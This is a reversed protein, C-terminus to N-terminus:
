PIITGRATTKAITPREKTLEDRILLPPILLEEPNIMPMM